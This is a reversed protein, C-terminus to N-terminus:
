DWWREVRRCWGILGGGKERQQQEGRVNEDESLGPGDSLFGELKGSLESLASRAKAELAAMAKLQEEDDEVVEPPPPIPVLEAAAVVLGHLGEAEDQM